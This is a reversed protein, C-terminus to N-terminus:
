SYRFGMLNIIPHVRVYKIPNHLCLIFLLSLSDYCVQLNPNLSRVKYKVTVVWKLFTHLIPTHTVNHVLVWAQACMTIMQPVEGLGSWCVWGCLEQSLLHLSKSVKSNEMPHQHWQGPYWVHPGSSLVHVRSQLWTLKKAALYFTSWSLHWMFYTYKNIWTDKTHTQDKWRNCRAVSNSNGKLVPWDSVRSNLAVWKLEAQAKPARTCIPAPGIVSMELWWVSPIVWPIGLGSHHWHHTSPLRWGNQEGNDDPSYLNQLFFVM